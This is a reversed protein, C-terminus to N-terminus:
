ELWVGEEYARAQEETPLAVGLDTLVQLSVEVAKKAKEEVAPGCDTIAALRLNDLHIMQWSSAQSEDIVSQSCEGCMTPDYVGQGRCGETGSMCWAHGTSRLNVSDAAGELMQRSDSIPIARTQMCKKGMGGSLRMDAKRWSAILDVKSERMADEFEHYLAQDQRPNAAYLQTWSISVHKFQWKIFVLGMRGLRSNAVNWAFTRRCQHNAIMWEAGAAQVLRNLANNCSAVSMVEVRSGSGLHDSVQHSLTLLMHQGIERVHNLRQVAVATTMGNSLLGHSNPGSALVGELWRGEDTLRQQLPEAYRQLIELSAVLEGPVLFDMEEGGSTKIEKTRVWHFLVKRGDRLTREEVRWCGNVVGTSESNRMGSTIQLQYLVADRISLLSVSAAGLQGADRANLLDKSGALVRECQEWLLRQISPPIVPTKGTKGVPDGQDSGGCADCLAKGSFPHEPLPYSMEREFAWVLDVIALRNQITSSSISKQLEAIHDAVYLSRVQSFNELGLSHFYRLTIPVKHGVRVGSSASWGMGGRGQRLACYVAAKADDVLDQPVDTPWCIKKDKNAKNKGEIESALYWIADGFRSVVYENGADDAVATVVVANREERNLGILSVPQQALLQFARPVPKVPFPKITATHPELLGGSMRTQGDDVGVAAEKLKVKRAM